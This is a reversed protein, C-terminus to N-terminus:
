TPGRSVGPGPPPAVTFACSALHRSERVRVARNSAPDIRSFGDALNYDLVWVASQGTVPVFAPRGPEAATVPIRALVHGTGADVRVVRCWTEEAIWLSGAAAATYYSESNDGFALTAAVPAREDGLRIATGNSGIAWLHDGALCPAVIHSGDPVTAAWRRAGTDPDLVLVDPENVVTAILGQPAAALADVHIGPLRATLTIAGTAPDVRLLANGRDRWRDGSALWLWRGTAAVAPAMGRAVGFQDPLETRAPQGAADVRWLEGARVIWFAGLAHCEAAFGPPGAHPVTLRAAVSAAAADVIVLDGTLGYAWLMGGGSLLTPLVPGSPLGLDVRVAPESTWGDYAALMGSEDLTWLAEAPRVSQGLDSSIVM